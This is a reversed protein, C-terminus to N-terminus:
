KVTAMEVGYDGIYQTHVVDGLDALDDEGIAISKFRNSVLKKYGNLVVPTFVVMKGAPQLVTSVRDLFNNYPRNFALVKNLFVVDFKQDFNYKMFDGVIGASYDSLDIGTVAFGRKSLQTMLQGRGCGVDLASGQLQYDDILKDLLIESVPSFVTDRM